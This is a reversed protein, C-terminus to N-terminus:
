SYLDLIVCETIGYEYVEEVTVVDDLHVLATMCHNLQVKQILRFSLFSTVFM